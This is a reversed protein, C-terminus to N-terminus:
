DDSDYTVAYSSTIDYALTLAFGIEQMTLEEPLHSGPVMTATVRPRPPREEDADKKV